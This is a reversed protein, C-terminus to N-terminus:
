SFLSKTVTAKAPNAGSAVTKTARNRTVGKNKKLWADFFHPESEGARIEAVTFKDPNRFIKVVENQERTEGSPIYSGDPGKVNRDVIQKQVAIYVPKKLLEMVVPVQTPVEKQAEYSYLKIVKDETDLESLEKGTTLLALSQGMLFGPLYAVTGDKKTYTNKGGKATGSTLWFTQRVDKGNVNFVVNLGTAGSNSTSVYALDIVAEYIDSDLVSYGGLIDKEEEVATDTTLSKLLSM